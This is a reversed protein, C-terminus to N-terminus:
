KLKAVLSMGEDDGKEKGAVRAAKATAPSCQASCSPTCKPGPSSPRSGAASRSTGGGDPCGGRRRDTSSAGAHPTATPTATPPPLPTATPTAMPTAAKHKERDRAGDTGEGIGLRQDRQFVEGAVGGAQRRACHRDVGLVVPHQGGAVHNAGPRDVLHWDRPAVVRTMAVGQHRDEVGELVVLDHAYADAAAHADPVELAAVGQKLKVDGM